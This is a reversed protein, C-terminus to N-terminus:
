KNCDRCKGKFEIKVESVSWGRINKNSHYDSPILKGITEESVTVDIINGCEICILHHHPRLNADFRMIGDHTSIKILLGSDVLTNLNQYITAVSSKEGRVRLYDLLEEPSMHVNKRSLADLILMRAKTPRLGSEALKTKCFGGDKSM